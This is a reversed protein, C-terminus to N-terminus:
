VMVTSILKLFSASIFFFITPPNFWCSIMMLTFLCFHNLLSYDIAVSTETEKTSPEDDVRWPHRSKGMISQAFYILWAHDYTARQIQFRTLKIFM